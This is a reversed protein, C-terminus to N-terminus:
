RSIRKYEYSRTQNNEALFFFIWGWQNNLRDVQITNQENIALQFQNNKFEGYILPIPIITRKHNSVFYNGKLKGKLILVSKQENGSFLVAKIKNKNIAILEVNEAESSLAAQNNLSLQNWFSSYSVSDTAKM